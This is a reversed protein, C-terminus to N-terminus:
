EILQHVILHLLIEMEFVPCFQPIVIDEIDLNFDRGLAKARTRAEKLLKYELTDSLGHTRFSNGTTEKMLCGCSKCQGNNLRAVSTIKDNGCDCKCKWQSESKTSIVREIVLLRGFRQGTLDKFIGM